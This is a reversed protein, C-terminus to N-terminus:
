PGFTSSGRTRLREKLCEVEETLTRTTTQEAELALELSM